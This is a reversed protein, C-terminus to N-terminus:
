GAREDTILQVNAANPAAAVVHGVVGAPTIVPNDKQVGNLTGKDITIRDLWLSTNRVIVDAAVFNYQLTPQLNIIQRLRQAQAADAESKLVRQQLQEVQGRLEANEERVHRLDAYNHWFHSVGDGAWAGPREILAFISMVLSRGISQEGRGPRPQLSIVMVQAFILIAFLYPARKKAEFSSM